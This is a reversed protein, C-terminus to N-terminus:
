SYTHQLGLASEPKEPPNTEAHLFVRGGWTRLPELFAIASGETTIKSLAPIGEESLKTRM